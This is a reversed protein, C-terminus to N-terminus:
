LRDYVVMRWAAAAHGVLDHRALQVRGLAIESGRLRRMEAEGLGTLETGAFRISGGTISGGSPLLRM